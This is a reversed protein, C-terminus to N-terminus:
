SGILTKSSIYDPTAQVMPCTFKSKNTMLLIRRVATASTKDMKLTTMEQTSGSTSLAGAGGVSGGPSASHSVSSAASCRLALSFFFVLGLAAASYVSELSPCVSICLKLLLYIYPLKM